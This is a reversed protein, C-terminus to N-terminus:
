AYMLFTSIMKAKIMEAVGNYAALVVQPHIGPSVLHISYLLRALYSPSIGQDSLTSEVFHSLQM